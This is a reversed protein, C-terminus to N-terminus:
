RVASLEIKNTQKNKSMDYIRKLGKLTLDEDIVDVAGNLGEAMLRSLGGTAIILPKKDGQLEATIRTLMGEVMSVYGWYIGSKMASITSDGIAKEPMEISIKPLKAAAAYLANVSLNVGPAIVGGIFAGEHDVVDFTTATGFDIVIAPAQYYELVAVANVLRDAGVEEPRPLKVALDPLIDRTIQQVDCDFLEDALRAIEANVDPVVSSVWVDCIQAFDVGDKQALPHLFASYEDATRKADTQLRWLAKVDDGEFFAFVSHTNGIDIALFM